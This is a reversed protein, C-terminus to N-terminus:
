VDRTRPAEHRRQIWAAVSPPVLGEVSGGVNMIERVLTSSVHSVGASPTLFVTEISEALHRNMLARQREVEFDMAGRLGRVVAASRQRIAYDVLLGRFSDVTVTPYPGFVERLMAVRDEVSFAPQKDPNILVAVIVRDFLRAAREVIDVHGITPPDFSGPFVATRPRADM